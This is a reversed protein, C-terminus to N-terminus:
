KRKTFRGRKDRKPLWDPGKPAPNRLPYTFYGAIFVGGMMVIQLIIQEM